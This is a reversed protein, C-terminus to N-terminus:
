LEFLEEVSVGFAKALLMATKVTPNETLGVEIRAIVDRSVGSKKALEQQSWDREWRFKQLNNRM